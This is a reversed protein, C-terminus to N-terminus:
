GVLKVAERLDDSDGDIDTFKKIKVLLPEIDKQKNQATWVRHLSLSARLELSRSKQLHAIQVALVFNNEVDEIKGNNQWIMEGKLRYVESLWWYESCKDILVHAEELLALAEGPRGFSALLEAKLSLYYPVNVGSGMRCFENVGQDLLAIGAEDKNLVGIAYGKMLVGITRWLPFGQSTCLEILEEATQLIEAYQRCFQHIYCKMFLSPAALADLDGLKRALGVAENIQERAKEPFGSHWLIKADVCMCTIVPTYIENVSQLAAGGSEWLDIGSQAYAKARKFDGNYYITISLARYAGILLSPVNETVALDYIDNALRIAETLDSIILSYRWRSILVSYLLSPKNLQICLDQVRNYCAKVEDAAYGRSATLYLGAQTLMTLQDEPDLGQYFPPNAEIPKEWNGNEVFYSFVTLVSGIMGLKRVAYGQEGRLIRSLLVEHLADRHRGANCGYVVAVFLPEMEHVTDPLEKARQKFHEYLRDNGLKWAEAMQKRLKRGFHERVLPHADIVDPETPDVDAILRTRRLKSLVQRWEKQSLDTIADTLGPIAPAARLASIAKGDAPRDFLGLLLLASVEAGEGLWREYAAMVQQAKGGLRADDELAVQNRCGIDGEFVDSLYSGLLTLALSHGDYEASVAQLESDDGKVGQAKLVQAGAEPALHELDIQAVAEPDFEELDALPIRSTVLCLGMNFGALERLLARLAEDKLKGEQEGPPFQLPELGDLFLLARQRNILQALRIGREWATGEIPNEDGFWALASSMFEDASVVREGTGHRYFSWAYVKEAGLYNGREIKRLWHNLLASKGVGGWAIISVINTDHGDWLRDLLELEQSRGFLNKGTVPMRSVSIKDPGLPVAKEAGPVRPVPVSKLMHYVERVISSLDTDIQHDTGASLPRGDKPRSQMQRLWDVTDWACPKIIIPFVRLGQTARRQLLFPTETEKIFESDLFSASILLLAVSARSMADEIESQWNSGAAIRRDDWLDVVGEHSLAGLQEVLRDKWDEDKHSYSIFLTPKQTM